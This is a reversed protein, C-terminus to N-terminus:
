GGGGDWPVMGGKDRWRAIQVRELTDLVRPFASVQGNRSLLVLNPFGPGLFSLGPPQLTRRQQPPPVRWYLHCGTERLKRPASRFPPLSPRPQASPYPKRQTQTRSLPCSASFLNQKVCTIVQIRLQQDPVHLTCYMCGRRCYRWAAEHMVLVTTWSLPIVIASRFVGTYFTYTYIYEVDMIIVKRKRRFACYRTSYQIIFGFVSRGTHYYGRGAMEIYM